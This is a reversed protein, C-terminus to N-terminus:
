KLWKNSYLEIMGAKKITKLGSNIKNLLDKKDKNVAIAYNEDTFIKGATKLKDPNIGVYLLAIPNDCVVANVQGNMLDQFALGIDDYPKAAAAKIKKVEKGGISGPKVGVPGSLTDKGTISTNNQSVVVIQGAAFYPDSFLMDKKREETIIISSIAADYLGKAMGALLPDWAVNKFEVQFDERAAIANMIDIDLGEIAKTQPNVSEFHPWTADTAVIVKIPETSSSSGCSTLLLSTIIIGFSVLFALRKM